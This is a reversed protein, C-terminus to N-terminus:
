EYLYTGPTTRGTHRIASPVGPHLGSLGRLRGQCSRTSHISGREQVRHLSGKKCDNKPYTMKCDIYSSMINERLSCILCSFGRNSKPWNFSFAFHWSYLCPAVWMNEVMLPGLVRDDSLKSHIRALENIRLLTGFKSNRETRSKQKRLERVVSKLFQKSCFSDTSKVHKSNM